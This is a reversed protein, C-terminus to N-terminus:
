RSNETDEGLVDLLSSIKSESVSTTRSFTRACLLCPHQVLSDAESASPCPMLLSSAGLDPQRLLEIGTWPWAPIGAPNLVLPGQVARPLGVRGSDKRSPRLKGGSVGPPQVRREAPPFEKGTCTPPTPDRSSHCSCRGIARRARGAPSPAALPCPRPRPTPAARRGPARRHPRSRAATSRRAAGAPARSLHTRAPCPRPGNDALNADPQWPRARVTGERAPGPPGRGGRPAPHLAPCM